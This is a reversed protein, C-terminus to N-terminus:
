KKEKDVVLEWNNHKHKIAKRYPVIYEKGCILCRIKDEM